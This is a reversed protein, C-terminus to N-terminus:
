IGSYGSVDMSKLDKAELIVVQLKGAAPVYRLSFCLQGLESKSGQFNLIFNGSFLAFTSPLNGFYHYFLDIIFHGHFIFKTSNQFDKSNKTKM